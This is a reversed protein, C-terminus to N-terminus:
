GFELFCKMYYVIHHQMNNCFMQKLEILEWFRQYLHPFGTWFFETTPLLSPTPPTSLSPSWGPTRGVGPASSTGAPPAKQCILHLVIRPTAHLLRQKLETNTPIWRFEIAVHSVGSKTSLSHRFILTWNTWDISMFFQVLMASPLPYPNYWWRPRLVNIQLLDFGIKALFM